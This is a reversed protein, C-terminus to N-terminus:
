KTLFKKMSEIKKIKEKAESLREREADVIEEPANSVFRENSLKKEISNIYSNLKDIQKGIREAEASMDIASDLCLYITAIDGIESPLPNEPTFNTDINIESASLFRKLTEVENKLFSEAQESAPKIVFSVKVGPQINFESRLSRGLKILEYKESVLNMKEKSCFGSRATPWESKMAMSEDNAGVTQHLLKYLEESLYPMVPHILRTIENLVCALVIQARRKNEPSDGYLAPKIAELYWDCFKNWLFDYLGAAYDHFHFEEISNTAAITAQALQELIWQEDSSFDGKGVGLKSTLSNCVGDAGHGGRGSAEVPVNQELPSKNTFKEYLEKPSLIPIGEELNMLAFRGANWIKNAFNRGIEFKDSTLLALGFKNQTEDDAWRSAMTKKCHPCDFFKLTMNEPIQPTLKECHPCKFLVPVRVDQTETSMNAVSFRLADVGYQQIIDIPDVGNGKSKSMTQGQGDLIKVHIVVDHFPVDGMNYLGMMVMRAVWLTVIDRSTILVSTPYWYDLEETKQPWGLTSHPWLASSFWTDLVDDEQKWGNAELFSKVNDDDSEPCVYIRICNSKDPHATISFSCKSNFSNLKETFSTEIYNDVATLIETGPNKPDINNLDVNEPVNIENTWISIRHGWWLQRSIPWDRKESLWDIYMKAYRPPHFNIKGEAVVNIAAEALDAMKIFWQESLYPEIPTKSRDSHGIQTEYPEIKEFLNIDKLNEIVAKRAEDKKMGAFKGGNKNITGDPNLINIMELNHRLGCEYDNPDHAPTVKVCGTGFERNVLQDDAIIPIERNSLPLLVTKGILHKYREDDPHVAVATDGLMTEPRTTAILLKEDSDKVPYWYYWLNAQVTEHYVEDDSVATHLVTDWNVLRTGRYILGDSFMKFFTHRVATACQDDLTFRIREWDCSCGMSKLQEIIRNGFKEKWQWIKEVLTERGIDHRTKGEEEFLKKEVVAQTAIGAHDTGPIWVANDGQMKRYRTIIDQLTDNIAHGLHLAGTVNPPPIVICFPNKSNDPEAHFLNSNEWAKYTRSEIEGPNYQKPIDM